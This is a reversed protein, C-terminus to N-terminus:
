LGFPAANAAADVGAFPVLGALRVPAVRPAPHPYHRLIVTYDLAGANTGQGSGRPARGSFVAVDYVGSPVLLLHPSVTDAARGTRLLDHDRHGACDLLREQSTLCLRGFSRVSGAALVRRGAGYMQEMVRHDPALVLKLRLLADPTEWMMATLADTERCLHQMLDLYDFGEAAFAPYSDIDVIAVYSTSRLEFVQEREARFDHTLQSRM